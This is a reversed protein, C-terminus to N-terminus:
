PGGQRGGEFDNNTVTLGTTEAGGKSATSGIALTSAKGGANGKKQIEALHPLTSIKGYGARGRYSRSAM